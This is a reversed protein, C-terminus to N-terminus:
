NEESLTLTKNPHFLVDDVMNRVVEYLYKLIAGIKKREFKDNRSITIQYVEVIKMFDINESKEQKWIQETFINKINIYNFFYSPVETGSKM